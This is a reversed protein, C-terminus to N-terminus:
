SLAEVVEDTPLDRVYKKTPDAKLLAVLERYRDATARNADALGDQMDVLENMDSLTCKGLTKRFRHPVAVISRMLREYADFEQKQKKVTGGVTSGGGGNVSKVAANRMHREVDRVTEAILDILLEDKMKDAILPLIKRAVKVPDRQKHTELYDQIVGNLNSSM